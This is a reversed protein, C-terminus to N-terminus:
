GAAVCIPQTIPAHTDFVFALPEDCLLLVSPSLSKAKCGFAFLKGLLHFSDNIALCNVQPSATSVVNRVRGVHRLPDPRLGATM